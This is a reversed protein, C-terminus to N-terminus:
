KGGAREEVLNVLHGVTSIKEVEEDPITICFESELDLVLELVDLSDADLDDKIHTDFTVRDADVALRDIIMLQVRVSINRQIM